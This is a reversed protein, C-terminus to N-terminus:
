NVDRSRFVLAAAVVAVVLVVGITTAGQQLSVTKEIWECTQQGTSGVSCVESGYLAEGRLVADLNLQLLWPRLGEFISGVIGEVVIVYGVIVGIAAATHRVITGMAVGLMAFAAALLVLRVGGETVDRWAENSMTGLNDNLSYGLWTGAVAIVCTVAAIPLVSIGSAGIKTGYVRGRRPEFTLWNGIAGSSFEAAIFSVGMAFAAFIVLLGIDPLVRDATDAFSAPGYMWDELNGPGGQECAYDVGPEFEQQAAEDAKCNAIYEDKNEEWDKVYAEYNAEIGAVEAESLPVSSRWSGFITIAVVALIGLVVLQNIRRSRFRTLEVRLLRMM